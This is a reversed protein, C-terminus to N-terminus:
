PEMEQGGFCLRNGEKIGIALISVALNIEDVDYLVRFRNDPGFRLEWAADFPAPTRMAKRNRTGELPTHSLQQRIHSEILGQYRHEVRALHTLAEPAYTLTYPRCKGM